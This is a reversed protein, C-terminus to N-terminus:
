KRLITPGSLVIFPAFPSKSFNIFDILTPPYDSEPRDRFGTDENEEQRMGEFSVPEAVSLHVPVPEERLCYGASMITRLRAIM